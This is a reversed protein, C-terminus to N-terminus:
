AKSAVSELALSLRHWNVPEAASTPRQEWVLDGRNLVFSGPMQLGDGQLPGVFIGRRLLLEFGRTWERVGFLQLFRGRGLGFARYLWCSPDSVVHYSRPDIGPVMDRVVEAESQTVIVFHATTALKQNWDEFDRLTEKCFTCGLHRLFFILVPKEMSLDLLSKGALGDQPRRLAEARNGLTLEEPQTPFTMKWKRWLIWGFPVWWILDNFVINWAFAGNFRGQLLATLYGIPGFIKGLFGVLVIPWHRMPDFAAIGYGLGYVGVIMGVCQWIEPYNLPELGSWEFFLNPKFVVLTGWVINYVAAALLIKMMIQRQKM